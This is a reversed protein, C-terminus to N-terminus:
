SEEVWDCGALRDLLHREADKLEREAKKQEALAKGAAVSLQNAAREHSELLARKLHINDALAKLEEPTPVHGVHKLEKM